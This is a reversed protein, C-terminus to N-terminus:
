SQARYIVHGILNTNNSYDGQSTQTTNAAGGSASYAAFITGITLNQGVLVHMSLFPTTMGTWYAIVGSGVPGASNAPFPLGGLMMSGNITGLTSLQVDFWATVQQGIKIYNGWQRSHVQGSNSVSGVFAPTWVGEEYDDLTNVDSSPVQTGPFQVKGGQLHLTVGVYLDNNVDVNNQVSLDAAIVSGQVTIGGTLTGGYIPLNNGANLNPVAAAGAAVAFPPQVGRNFTQLGTILQDNEAVVLTKGSLASTPNTVAVTSM